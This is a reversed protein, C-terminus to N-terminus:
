GKRASTFTGPYLESMTVPKMQPLHEHLVGTIFGKNMNPLILLNM